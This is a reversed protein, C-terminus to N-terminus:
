RKAATTEAKATKAALMFFYVAAFEFVSVGCLSWRLSAAGLAPHLLDSAIGVTLPGLGLGVINLIFLYISAAMARMRTPALAQVMAFAPGTFLSGVLAPMTFFLLAHAASGALFTAFYFPIALATFLAPFWLYWRYDRKGLWDSAFGGVLTGVVGAIGIILGVHLGVERTGLGFSRIIYSPNWQLVGYATLAHLASAITLYRFTKLGWLHRFAAAISPVPQAAVGGDQAGRVPERVTVLYLLALVVGPIGIVFFATRWGFAENVWGGGALGVLIGVPIGCSYVALASARRHPPFYDSIMAHAPPSAGAEGVGVGIRAALLAVFSQAMGSFATMISWIIVALTVINRRSYRDALRAIPIGLTAYFIAFALGSLFGLQTDSLHLDKRIPEMLISLLQRDVYNLAYLVFLFALAYQAQVTAKPYPATAQIPAPTEM